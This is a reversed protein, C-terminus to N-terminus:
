RALEGGKAKWEAHLKEFDSILHEVVKVGGNWFEPDAIDIGVRALLDRPSCAGGTKLMEMYKPVFSEGDRKYMSYLAMVLLEGFSYAYVYFPSSIFHNVYMWWNEHEKGMIVSDGFMAQMENQWLEGIEERTLEGRERRARHLEQEFRFMAAQRFITAFTEEIKEAYLALKEDLDSKAALSEFVLMEGFTSALEAVPLASHFNMYSQNRSVYAHVGHGLEHALTMVDDKRNLYSLLVYPHLDPTVYMCFAGGRKGKRPAADIWKKNFFKDAAAAMDKSFGGFSDLVIQRAENFSYQKKAEFLPAYRDYHTLEDLGLIERKTHYYRAVLSYNNVSASIVTDVIEKDLENSLNRAQEPYGYRKLRDDVSKDFVLTNFIFTLLRGNDLLGKTLSGAALKRVERNPDRLLALIEPETLTKEEGDLTIKFEIASVMEEFLREFARSGTNAKEELIREEPESLRHDRFLRAAQIFHRYDELAKDDLLPDIIEPKVAMLELDFFMLELSIETEREQVHQMFAGSEPKSTDSAFLLAAYSGTKAMQQAIDEYEKIASLLVQTNLSESNIKGRYTQAFKRSCELLKDLNEDVRPDDPGSFLDNLDWAVSTMEPM